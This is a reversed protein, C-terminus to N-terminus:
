GLLTNYPLPRQHKSFNPDQLQTRTSYFILHVWHVQGKVKGKKQNFKVM